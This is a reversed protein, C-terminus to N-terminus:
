TIMAGMCSSMVTHEFVPATNHVLSESVIFAVAKVHQLIFQLWFTAISFIRHNYRRCTGVATTGTLGLTNGKQFVDGAVARELKIVELLIRILCGAEALLSDLRRRFFRM